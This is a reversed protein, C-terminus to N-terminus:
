MLSYRFALCLIVAGQTLKDAVPDLIKGVDSVMGFRRAIFGDLIDTIGSLALVAVAM